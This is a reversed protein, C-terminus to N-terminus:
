LHASRIHGPQDSWFVIGKQAQGNGKSTWRVFIKTYKVPFNCEQISLVYFDIM